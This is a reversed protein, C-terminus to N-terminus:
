SPKFLGSTQPVWFFCLRRCAAVRCKKKKLLHPSPADLARKEYSHHYMDPVVAARRYCAATRSSFTTHTEAGAMTLSHPLFLPPSLISASRLLCVVARPIDLRGRADHTAARHKIHRKRCAAYRVFFGAALYGFM